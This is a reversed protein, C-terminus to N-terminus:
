SCVSAVIVLHGLKPHLSIAKRCREVYTRAFEIQPNFRCGFNAYLHLARSALDNRCSYRFLLAQEVSSTDFTLGLNSTGLQCAVPCRVIHALEDRHSNCFLCCQVSALPAKGRMRRGTAWGNFWTKFMVSLVCPPVLPKLSSAVSFVSDACVFLCVCLAPESNDNNNNASQEIKNSSNNVVEPEPFLGFVDEWEASADSDEDNAGAVPTAEGDDLHRDFNADLSLKENKRRFLSPPYSNLHNYHSTKTLENNTIIIKSDM